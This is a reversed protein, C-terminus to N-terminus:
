FWIISTEHISLLWFQDQFVVLFQCSESSTMEQSLFPDLCPPLSLSVAEYHKISLVIITREIELEKRILKSFANGSFHSWVANWILWIISTKKKRRRWLNNLQKWQRARRLCKVKLQFVSYLHERHRFLSFLPLPFLDSPRLFLVEM